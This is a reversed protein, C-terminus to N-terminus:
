QLKKRAESIEEQMISEFTKIYGFYDPYTPNILKKGKERNRTFEEIQKAFEYGDSTIKDSLIELKKINDDSFYLSNELVFRNRSIYANKLNVLFDKPLDRKGNFNTTIVGYGKKDEEFESLAKSLTDYKDKVLLIEQNSPQSFQILYIFIPVLTGGLFLLIYEIKKGKFELKKKGM